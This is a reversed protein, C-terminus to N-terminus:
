AAASVRASQLQPWLQLASGSFVREREADTLFSLASRALDAMARYGGLDTHPFDSGWMLRDVGFREVVRKFFSKHPEDAALIPTSFKWFLNPIDALAFLDPEVRAPEGLGVGLHDVAVKLGDFRAALRGIAALNRRTTLILVPVDLAQAERLLDGLASDDPDLDAGPGWYTLRVGAMGRERVWYRLLGPADPLAPSLGAIGVLRDPFRAASDAHYANDFGYLGFAQVALAGDVGAEDMRALFADATNTYEDTHIPTADSRPYAALDDSGLHSHTDIIV